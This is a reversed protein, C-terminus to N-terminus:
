KTFFHFTNINKKQNMSFIYKAICLIEICVNYHPFSFIKNGGQSMIVYHLQGNMTYDNNVGGCCGGM